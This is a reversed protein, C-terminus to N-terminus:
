SCIFVPNMAEFSYGIRQEEKEVKGPIILEETM